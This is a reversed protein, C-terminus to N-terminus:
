NTVQNIQIAISSISIVMCEKISTKSKMDLLILIEMLNKTKKMIKFIIDLKVLNAMSMQRLCVKSRFIALNVSKIKTLIIRLRLQQTGLILRKQIM